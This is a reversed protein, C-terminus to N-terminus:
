YFSKLLGLITEHEPYEGLEKCCNSLSDHLQFLFFDHSGSLIHLLSYAHDGLQGSMIPLGIGNENLETWLSILSMSTITSLNILSDDKTVSGLILPCSNKSGSRLLIFSLGRDSTLLQNLQAEILETRDSIKNIGVSFAKYISHEDFISTFQILRVEEIIDSTLDYAQDINQMMESSKSLEPDAKHFCLILRELPFNGLKELIDTLYTKSENFRSPNQIDLLYFILDIEEFHDPTALYGKRYTEQGGFDWLFVEQGLVNTSSRAIGKTPRLSPITGFNNSIVSLFSTKGCNDLGLIAIKM